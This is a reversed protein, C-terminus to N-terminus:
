CPPAPSAAPTARWCSRPSPSATTMPSWRPRVSGWIEWLAEILDAQEHISYRHRPPKDSQGFGLLDLTTVRHGAAVLHPVTTAWDHSSTPFGHVLTVPSGDGDQRVFMRHGNLEPRTGGAIWDALKM